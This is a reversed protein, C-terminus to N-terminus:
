LIHTNLLVVEWKKPKESVMNFCNPNELDEKATVELTASSSSDLLNSCSIMSNPAAEGINVMKAVSAKSLRNVKTPPM